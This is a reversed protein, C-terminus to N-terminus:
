TPSFIRQIKSYVLHIADATANAATEDTKKKLIHQRRQHGPSEIELVFSLESAPNRVIRWNVPGLSSSM